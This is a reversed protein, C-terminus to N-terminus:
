AVVVLVHLQTPFPTQMQIHPFHHQLSHPSPPLLHHLCLIVPHPIHSGEVAVIIIISLITTTTTTTIIILFIATQTRNIMIFVVWTWILIFLVIDTQIQTWM